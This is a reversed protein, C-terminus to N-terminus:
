KDVKPRTVSNRQVLPLDIKVLHNEIKEKKILKDILIAATRGIQNAQHNLATVPPQSLRYEPGEGMGIISLDRPINLGHNKVAQLCPLTLWYSASIVATPPDDLSLLRHMQEYGLGYKCASVPNFIEDNNIEIDARSIYDERLEIRCERLAAIYGKEREKMAQIMSAWRGGFIVLGIKQHGSDILYKVADHIAQKDNMQVCPIKNDHEVQNEITVVPFGSDVLKKVAESTTAHHESVRIVAGAYGDEPLKMLNSVERSPDFLSKVLSLGINESRLYSELGNIHEAFHVFDDVVFAVMTKSNGNAPMKANIFTGRGQERRLIGESSLETLGRLVAYRTTNLTQVLEAESPLPDNPGFNSKIYNKVTLYGGKIKNSNKSM